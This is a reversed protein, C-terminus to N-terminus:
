IKQFPRGNADEIVCWPYRETSIIDTALHHLNGTFAANWSNEDIKFARSIFKQNFVNTGLGRNDWSFNYFVIYDFVGVQNATIVESAVFARRTSALAGRDVYQHLVSTTDDFSAGMADTLVFIFKGRLEDLTKWNQAQAAQKLSQSTGLLDIPTYVIGRLYQDILADFHAASHNHDNTFADHMDVFVTIVEHNMNWLHIKRCRELFLSFTKVNSDPFSVIPDYHYVYWDGDLDHQHVGKHLDIEMSHVNSFLIQGPIDQDPNEFANHSSKQRVENYRVGNPLAPAGTLTKSM